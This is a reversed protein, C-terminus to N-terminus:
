ALLLFSQSTIQNETIGMPKHSINCAADHVLVCLADVTSAIDAVTPNVAPVMLLSSKNIKSVDKTSQM